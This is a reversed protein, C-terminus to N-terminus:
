HKVFFTITEPRTQFPKISIGTLYNINENVKYLM